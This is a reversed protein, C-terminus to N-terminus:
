LCKYNVVLTHGYIVGDFNGQPLHQAKPYDIRGFVSDGEINLDIKTLGSKGNQEFCFREPPIPANPPLDYVTPISKILKGHNDVEKCATFTIAVLIIFLYRVKYKKYIYKASLLM